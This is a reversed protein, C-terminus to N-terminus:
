EGLATSIAAAGVPPASNGFNSRLYTLLAAADSGTMWGFRPMATAYRDPPMSAARQGQVVWLAFATPDGLVVPSGVLSPYVGPIGQANQQHCSACNATFLFAGTRGAPPLAAATNGTTGAAATGPPSNGPAAPSCGSLVGSAGLAGLLTLMIGGPIHRHARWANVRWANVRWANVRWADRRARAPRANASLVEPPM